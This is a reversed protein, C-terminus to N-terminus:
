SHPKEALSKNKVYYEISKFQKLEEDNLVKDTSIYENNKMTYVDNIVSYTKKLDSLYNLYKSGKLEAYEFFENMLFMPSITNGVGKFSKGLTKKAPENAYIVYPTAYYNEAGVPTDHDFDVNLMDYVWDKNGLWPNHDGFLILVIPEEQEDIYNRLKQLAKDTKSIWDLYNNVINYGAETYSDQKKLWKKDYDEFDYYPGHNQITVSFNFYKEGNKVADEFGDIIYDFFDWDSMYEWYRKSSLEEDPINGFKNEFYDFSDFGLFKNMNNRNYFWGYGPHMAEVRYGQSKFYRVYSATDRQHFRMDSFGTLFQRETYITSGAFIDTYLKGSYSDKQLKHFNAYPDDEFEMCDFKTFDSYAELMISIMHVKKDDDLPVDEYSNLVTSAEKEDYGDPPSIFASPISKIFSYIVGRSTSQDGAKYESGYMPRWLSDHIKANNFYLFNCSLASVAIACAIGCIRFVPKEIRNKGNKYIFYAFILIAAFVCLSTIDLYLEYNNTMNGAESIYLVDEFVFPSDRFAIKFRNVEAIVFAVTATIIYSIWMRNVVCYLFTMVLFIPLVNLLFVRLDIILLLILYPNFTPTTLIMIGICLVVSILLLACLTRWLSESSNDSLFIPKKINKLKEKM